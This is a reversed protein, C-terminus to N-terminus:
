PFRTVICKLAGNQSHANEECDWFAITELFNSIDLWVPKKYKNEEFCAKQTPFASVFLCITPSM